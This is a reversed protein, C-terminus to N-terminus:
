PEFRINDLRILGQGGAQNSEVTFVLEEMDQWSSVPKGYGAFGFDALRASVTQWEPGIGSLYKISLEGARKLELKIQRPMGAQPDAQVDFVLRGYPRLDAGQLKLWFASWGTIKYELSAVCGRNAVPPYSEVLKDPPNYAAGMEGGLNNIGKCTDFDAVLLPPASSTPTPALGPQPAAPGRCGACLLAVILLPAFRRVQLLKQIASSRLM